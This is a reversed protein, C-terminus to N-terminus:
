PGARVTPEQGSYFPLAPPFSGIPFEADLRGSRLEASANAYAIRFETRDEYLRKRRAPDKTHFAPAPSRKTAEPRHWPDVRQVRKAGLVTKGERRLRERTEREIGRIMEEYRQRIEARALHDWSPLPVLDFTHERAHTYRGVRKGRRRAEYEATRDFWVAQVPDGGLLWPVASAGPWDRPSRVLSEKCGHSLLYRLRAEEQDPAALIPRYRRGWMKGRRGVARNAEKSIQTDIQGM